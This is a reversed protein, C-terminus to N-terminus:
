PQVKQSFLLEEYQFPHCEHCSLASEQNYHDTGDSCPQTTSLTPFNKNIEFFVQKLKEWEVIRLAIGKMSPCPSGKNKNFYFERLDVCDFGSTVSVYFGGGLHVQFAVKDSRGLLQNVQQDIFYELATLQAWRKISFKLSKLDSGVEEIIIVFDEDCKKVVVRRNNGINFEKSM